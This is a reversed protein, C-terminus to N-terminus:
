GAEKGNPGVRVEREKNLDPSIDKWGKPEIIQFKSTDIEQDISLRLVEIQNTVTGKDDTEVLKLLVGTEQDIWLKFRSAQHKEALTGSLTGELVIATRDLYPETGVMTHPYRYLWFGYAQPFLVDHASEAYSPDKRYKYVPVGEEDIYYRPGDQHTSDKTM